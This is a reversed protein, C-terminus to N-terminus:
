WAGDGGGRWAAFAKVGHLARLDADRGEGWIEVDAGGAMLDEDQWGGEGRMKCEDGVGIGAIFGAVHCHFADAVGIFFGADAARGAGILRNPELTESLLGLGGHGADSLEVSGDRCQFLLHLDRRELRLECLRRRHVLDLM